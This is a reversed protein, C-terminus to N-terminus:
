KWFYPIADESEGIIQGTDLNWNMIWNQIWGTNGELDELIGNWAEIVKNTARDFVAIYNQRDNSNPIPLDDIFRERDKIPIDNSDRYFIAKKSAIASIHRSFLIPEDVIDLKEIYSSHWHDIDPPSTSFIDNHAGKFMELWVQKTETHFNNVNGAQSCNKLLDIYEANPVELSEGKVQNFIFSDQTMECLRHARKNEEYPGVILNVIPHVVVDVIVHSVYGLYWALAEDSGIKTLCELGSCIMHKTNTYHMRDAWTKAKKSILTLYPYDPAVAGAKLFDNYLYLIHKKQLSSNNILADKAKETVMFHAYTGAM